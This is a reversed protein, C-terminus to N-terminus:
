RTERRRAYAIGVLGWLVLPISAPEPIAVQGINITLALAAYAANGYDSASISVPTGALSINNIDLDVLLSGSWSVSDGDNFNFNGSGDVGVGFDDRDTDSGDNDIYALDISRTNGAITLTADGTVATVEVDNDNTFNILDQWTDNNSLGDNDDFFGSGIATTSGSFTWVTQGSGADGTIDVVLGAQSVLSSLLLTSGLLSRLAPLKWTM